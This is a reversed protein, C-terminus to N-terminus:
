GKARVSAYAGFDPQVDSALSSLSGLISAYSPAAIQGYGTLAALEDASPMVSNLDALENQQSLLSQLSALASGGSATLAELAALKAEKPNTPQTPAAEGGRMRAAVQQGYQLTNPANPNRPDSVAIGKKAKELAGEGGYYGAATIEPVGGSKQDLLKLYRIGARANQLPDTIDWDKDAMRNFTSPIIQMGGVAGANSTKTNKGSASEQAYISRALDALPGKVGEAALAEDFVNSKAM